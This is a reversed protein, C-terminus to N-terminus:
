KDGGKGKWEGVSEYMRAFAVWLTPFKGVAQKPDVITVAENYTQIM